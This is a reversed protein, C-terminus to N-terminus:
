ILIVEIKEGASMGTMDAPIRVMGDAAALSFILSSKGFVPEALYQVEENGEETKSNELLKVAVWDERGAQSSINISLRAIISPRIRSETIKLLSEIVPVLFLEAIVLASVPNGPLGIVAKGNCVGLITPKGPRINVGHVLVGPIGLSSIAKATMDRASASSGATIVVATCETLANAATTKIRELDDPVIGYLIPDGGAQRVVAALSYSNIDRVQGPRPTNGPAVVEDGSSIIGIRPMKAVRMETIGLAMCGGIQAPRIRIGAALIMQNASVDEGARVINEGKAVARFIEIELDEESHNSELYDLRFIDKKKEGDGVDLNQLRNRSRTILQTNELMIVADAGEPLMGGTNISACTGRTLVFTSAAGMPVEGILRLYGPQSDSAGFTDSARVAYGDMSSRNFEPLEHPAHIDVALVRDLCDITDIVETAYEQDKLTKLLNQLAETPPSLQLFEPM